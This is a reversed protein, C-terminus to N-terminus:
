RKFYEFSCHATGSASIVSLTQGAVVAFARSVGAKLFLSGTGDTVDSSPVVATASDSAWLDADSTIVVWSAGDPVTETEAATVTRHNVYAPFPTVPVSGWFEKTMGSTLSQAVAM